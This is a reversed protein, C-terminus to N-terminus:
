AAARLLATRTQVYPERLFRCDSKWMRYILLRGTPHARELTTELEFGLHEDFKRAEKNGEGVLGTVREVKAQNFPYDFCTWLYERTMWRSGEAAVHMQINVGNFDSYAVGAILEWNKGKWEQLGIGVACGFNGFENTKKAVWEVVFKGSVIRKM